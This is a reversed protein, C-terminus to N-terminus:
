IVIGQKTIEKGYHEFLGLLNKFIKNKATTNIVVLAHLCAELEDSQPELGESISVKRRIEIRGKIFSCQSNHEFLAVVTERQGSNNPM